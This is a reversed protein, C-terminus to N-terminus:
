TRIYDDVINEFSHIKGTHNSLINISPQFFPFIPFHNLFYFYFFSLFRNYRRVGCALATSSQLMIRNQPKVYTILLPFSNYPAELVSLAGFLKM